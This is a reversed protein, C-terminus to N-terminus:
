SRERRREEALACLLREVPSFGSVGSKLLGDTEVCLMLARELMAASVKMASIRYLRVKYANMGTRRATEEDSLGSAALARVMVLDSFAATIGALVATPKERDRKAAVLVELADGTKGSLVANSLAFAGLEPDAASLAELDEPRAETRGHALVFCSLKDTEQALREMDKGSRAILARALDAPCTVGDHEVHRVVWRALDAPAPTEFRVPTLRGGLTKKLVEDLHAANKRVSFDLAGRPAILCLVSSDFLEERQLVAALAELPAGSFLRLDCDVYEVLRRESFLPLAALEEGLAAPATDSFSRRAYNFSLYDEEPVVMQRLNRRAARKLYEEDGCFFYAPRLKGAKLEARLEKETLM